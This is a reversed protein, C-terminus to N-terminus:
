WSKGESESKFSILNFTDNSITAHIEADKLTEVLMDGLINSFQLIPDGKSKFIPSHTKSEGFMLFARVVGKAMVKAEIPVTEYL